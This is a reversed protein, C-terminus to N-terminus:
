DDDETDACGKRLSTEIAVASCDSALADSKSAAAVRAVEAAAAVSVASLLSVGRAGEVRSRLVELSAVDGDKIFLGRTGLITFDLEDNTSREHSATHISSDGELVTVSAARVRTVQPDLADLLAVVGEGDSHGHRLSGKATPGTGFVVSVAVHSGDQSNRLVVVKSETTVGDNTSSLGDDTNLNSEGLSDSNGGFDVHEAADVEQSSDSQLGVIRDRSSTSEFVSGRQLVGELERVDDVENNRRGQNGVVRQGINVARIGLTSRASLLDTKNQDGASGAFQVTVVVEGGRDDATTVLSSARKIGVGVSGQNGGLNDRFVEALNDAEVNVEVTSQIDVLVSM